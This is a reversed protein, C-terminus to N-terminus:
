SIKITIMFTTVKVFETLLGLYNIDYKGKLLFIKMNKKKVLM